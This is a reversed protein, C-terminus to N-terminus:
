YEVPVNELVEVVMDSPPFGPGLFPFIRNKHAKWNFSSPGYRSGGMVIDLLNQRSDHVIVGNIRQTAYGIYSVELDYLGPDTAISYNGDFDTAVGTVLVGQNFITVNAAILEEGSDGDTVKGIITTQTFAPLSFIATFLLPILIKM